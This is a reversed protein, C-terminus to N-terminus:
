RQEREREKRSLKFPKDAGRDRLPKAPWEVGGEALFARRAAALERGSVLPKKWVGGVYRPRALQQVRTVLAAATRQGAMELVRGVYPYERM